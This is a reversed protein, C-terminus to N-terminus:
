NVIKSMYQYRGSCRTRATERLIYTKGDYYHTGVQDCVIKQGAYINYPPSSNDVIKCDSFRKEEGTCVVDKASMPMM